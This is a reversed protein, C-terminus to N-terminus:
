AAGTRYLQNMIQRIMYKIGQPSDCLYLGSRKWLYKYYFEADISNWIRRFLEENRHLVVHVKHDDITKSYVAVTLDDFYDGGKHCEYGASVLYNHVEESYQQSFDWDTNPAIRTGIYLSPDFSDSSERTAM